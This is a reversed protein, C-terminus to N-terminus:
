APAIAPPLCRRDRQDAWLQRGGCASTPAARPECPEQRVRSSFEAPDLKGRARSRRSRVACSADRRSFTQLQVDNRPASAVFCDMTGKRLSISQKASGTMPRANARGTPECHRLFLAVREATMVRWGTRGEAPRIVPEPPHDLIGFVAAISGFLRPTSSEGGGRPIVFEGTM